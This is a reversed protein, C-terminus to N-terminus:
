DVSLSLPEIGIDHLRVCVACIKRLMLQANQTMMPIRVFAHGLKNGSAFLFQFAREEGDGAVMVRAFLIHGRTRGMRKKFTECHWQNNAAVSRELFNLSRRRRGTAMEVNQWRQYIQR